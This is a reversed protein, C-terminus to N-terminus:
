QRRFMVCALGMAIVSFACINPEPVPVITQRISDAIRSGLTIQDAAGFHILGDGFQTFDDTPIYSANPDATAFNQLADHVLDINSQTAIGPNSGNKWDAPEVLFTHMDSFGMTPFVTNMESRFGNIVSDLNAAYASARSSNIVDSEGQLWVMGLLNVTDGALLIENIGDSVALKLETYDIEPPPGPLWRAINSGGIAVKVIAPNLNGINVLDRGLSMEPGIRQTSANFQWPTLTGFTQGSNDSFSGATNTVDYYFAVQSDAADTGPLTATTNAQGVMNSQGALIVLDVEAASAVLTAFQCVVLMLAFVTRILLSDM